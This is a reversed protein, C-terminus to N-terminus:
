IFSTIFAEIVENIKIIFDYTMYNYFTILYDEYLSELYDYNVLEYSTTLNDDNNTAIQNQVQEFHENSELTVDLNTNTDTIGFIEALEPDALFDEPTLTMDTPLGEDVRTTDIQSVMITNNYQRYSLILCITIGLMGLTFCITAVNDINFNSLNSLM